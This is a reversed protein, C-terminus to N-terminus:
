EIMQDLVLIKSKNSKVQNNLPLIDDKSTSDNKIEISRGKKREIKSINNVANLIDGIEFEKEMMKQIIEPPAPPLWFLPRRCPRWGRYLM